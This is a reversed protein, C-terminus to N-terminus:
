RHGSSMRLALSARQAEAEPLRTPGASCRSEPCGLVKTWAPCMGAQTTPCAGPLCPSQTERSTGPPCHNLRATVAQRASDPTHGRQSLAGSAPARQERFRVRHAKGQSPRAKCGKAPFTVARESQASARSDQTGLCVYWFMQLQFSITHPNRECYSPHPYAVDSVLGTRPEHVTSASPVHPNM